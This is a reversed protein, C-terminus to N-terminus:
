VLGVYRIIKKHMEDILNRVRDQLRRLALRMRYQRKKQKRREKKPLERDVPAQRLTDIKSQLKDMRICIEFIQEMDAKGFEYLRGAPDYGTQFTRVGPDLAVVRRTMPAKMDGKVVVPEPIALYFENRHTRILRCEYHVQDPPPLPEASDMAEYGLYSPYFTGSSFAQRQVLTM